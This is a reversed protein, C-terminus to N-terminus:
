LTGELNELFVILFDLPFFFTTITEGQINFLNERAGFFHYHVAVNTMEFFLIIFYKATNQYTEVLVLKALIM